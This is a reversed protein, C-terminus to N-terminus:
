GTEEYETRAVIEDQIPKGLEVWYETFGAVRVMLNRYQEPHQQADKLMRSDVINFQVHFGGRDFFSKILELLKRAGQVGRVASPHMKMNLQTNVFKTHDFCLASNLLAYPGNLDTGPHASVSADALTTGALRGDPTAMCAQGFPGHTAVSIMMPVYRKGFYTKTRHTIDVTLEVVAKYIQDVYPDDNGFKPAKLCMAFIGDWEDTLREQEALLSYEETEIASKRGFNARLAVKLEEFTVLKDDYVLKKVAALSNTANVPGVVPSAWTATYRAGGADLDKGKEICDQVFASLVLLNNNQRHITYVFNEAVTGITLLERLYHEFRAWLDEWTNLDGYPPLVRINTRPDVGDWLVLEVVKPLNIFSRVNVPHSCGAVGIELCGFLAWSRAEGLTMGDPGHQDMLFEIGVRNNVWAPYGTGIKTCEIAKFLFRDSLVPDYILTLTPAPSALTMASELILEELENEASSGDPNVGGITLNNFTNGSLKGHAGPSGALEIETYKVRMCELLELTEERTLRGEDIDKKYYPYLYQGLRGPSVGSILAENTIAVHLIWHLQLAERFTRPPNESVWSLIDAIEGYEGKQKPDEEVQALRAAEKAYNKVWTKLGELVEIEATWFIRKDIEERDLAEIPQEAIKQKCLEVMGNFGKELLLQYNAVIRGDPNTSFAPSSFLVTEFGKMDIEYYPGFIRKELELVSDELSQGEWYEALEVLMPLYERRLGFRRGFSIINGVSEPVTGGGRGLITVDDYSASIFGLKEKGALEAAVNLVYKESSHVMCPAGRMYRTKQMVLLEGPWIVPTINSFAHRLAIARRLLPPLGSIEKERWKLTYYYPFEIDLCVKANLLRERLKRTRETTPEREIERPAVEEEAPQGPWQYKLELGTSKEAM